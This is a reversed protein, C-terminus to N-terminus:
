VRARWFFKKEDVASGSDYLLKYCVRCYMNGDSDFKRGYTHDCVRIM